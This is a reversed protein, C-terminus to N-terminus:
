PLARASQRSSSRHPPAPAMPMTPCRAPRVTTTIRDNGDLAAAAIVFQSATLTGLALGGGSFVADDIHGLDDAVIFSQITDVNDVASLTTTFAFRDLGTGGNM